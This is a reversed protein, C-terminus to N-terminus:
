SLTVISMNMSITTACFNSSINGISKTLLLNPSSHRQFLQLHRIQQHLPLTYQVHPTLVIWSPILITIKLATVLTDVGNRQAINFISDLAAVPTALGFLIISAYLIKM